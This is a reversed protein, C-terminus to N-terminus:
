LQARALAAQYDSEGLVAKLMALVNEPPTGVQIAHSPAAIYGGGQGLVDVLRRCETMVTKEDTKPLLAQVSIGGHFSLRDGYTEKLRVPEMGAAETQVAELVEVGADILDPLIDFVAGDSHFMVFAHPAMEKALCMLRRHYPQLIDRYVQRSILLSVQSGLDDAFFFVDVLDACGVLTQRMKEEFFHTIRDLAVCVLRPNLLLNVMAEELGTMWCYIEFPNGAPTLKGARCGEPDVALIQERLNEYDYIEPDPWPYTELEAPTQVGALPYVEIEDYSGAGYSVPKRQIGWIDTHEPLEPGIYTPRISQIDDTIVRLKGWSIGQRALYKELIASMEPTPGFGWSFPVRDPPQHSLARRVRQRPSMRDLTKGVTQSM